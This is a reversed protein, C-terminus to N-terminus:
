DPRNPAADSERGLMRREVFQPKRNINLHVRGLYEGIIGLALLQAGGLVLVAVIISAYGPVEMRGALALGLFVSALALGGGAAAMGLWSVAQLPALSFNTLMNVSLLLLRSLSYGSAGVGREEHRVPVAGIRTTNWALLGDLFTFNLDYTLVSRALERRVARFASFDVDVRFLKRYLLTLVRSGGNRWRRHYRQEPSGYVLDLSQERLTALLRPIEEPPHQLDDDMTVIVDGRARRLGCMLANHQGFNRMLQIAVVRDPHEAHLAALVDWSDDPSGDDVLILEHRLGEGALVAMVRTAVDRITASSRYVPIVVSVDMRTQSSPESM